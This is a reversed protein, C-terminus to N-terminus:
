RVDLVYLDQISAWQKLTMDRYVQGVRLLLRTRFNRQIALITTHYINKRLQLM